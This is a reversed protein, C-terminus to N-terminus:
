EIRARVSEVLKPFMLPEPDEIDFLVFATDEEDIILEKISESYYNTNVEAKPYLHSEGQLLMQYVLEEVKLILVDMDIATKTTM